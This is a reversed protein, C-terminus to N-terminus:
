WFLFNGIQMCAENEISGAAITKMHFSKATETM